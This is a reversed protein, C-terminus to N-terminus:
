KEECNWCKVKGPALSYSGCETCCPEEMTNKHVTVIRPEPRERDAEAEEALAQRIEERVIQRIMSLLLDDHADQTLNINMM